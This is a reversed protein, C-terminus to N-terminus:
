CEVLISSSVESASEILDKSRAPTDTAMKRDKRVNNKSLTGSQLDSRDVVRVNDPYNRSPRGHYSAGPIRQRSPSWGPVLQNRGVREDHKGELLSSGNVADDDESEDDEDDDDDNEADDEEEQGNILDDEAEDDNEDLGDDDVTDIACRGNQRKSQPKASENMRGHTGLKSDLYDLPSQSNLKLQEAITKLTIEGDEVQSAGVRMLEEYQNELFALNRFRTLYSSYLSSLEEELQEYEEMYAPRVSQLTALRKRNRDLESRKKEIKGDLTAEDAAVNVLATETKEVQGHLADRADAVCQEVWASDLQRRISRDRAERLGIERGLLTHLSAGISALQSSLSRGEQLQKKKSIDFLEVVCLESTENEDTKDNKCIASYLVRTIKMLEKVAFGNAQYLKKTNLRICARTAMFHAVTKIFIVRDQETDLCQPLDAHSDYRTVLWTLIEAVLPFNPTRFNEMSINRNFGLTRMMETFTRMERYSM